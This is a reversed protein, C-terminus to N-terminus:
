DLAIELGDPTETSTSTVFWGAHFEVSSTPGDADPSEVERRYRGWSVPVSIKGGDVTADVSGNSVQEATYVPEYKWATG